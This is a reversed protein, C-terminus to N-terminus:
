WCPDGYLTAVTVNGRASTGTLLSTDISVDAPKWKELHSIFTVAWQTGFTGYGSRSVKVRRRPYHLDELVTRMSTESVDHFLPPSQKGDITVKFMGGLDNANADIYINQIASSTADYYNDPGFFEVLFPDDNGSGSGLGAPTRDGRRDNSFPDKANITFSTQIADIATTVGPGTALSLSPYLKWHVALVEPLSYDAGASKTACADTISCPLVLTATAGSLILNGGYRVDVTYTGVKLITYTVIYTSDGQDEVIGKYQVSQDTKHSLTVDFTDGGVLRLNGYTDKSQITFAAVVGTVADSFGQGSSVTTEHSTPGPSVRVPFPSCKKLGGLGCYIHTGGM